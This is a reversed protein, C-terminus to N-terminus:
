FGSMMMRFARDAFDDALKSLASRKNAETAAPNTSSVAYDGYWSFASNSWIIKRSVREEFVLDMVATVRDEKAVDVSTYSLHSSSLNNISGRVVADAEERREAVRFRSTKRFQDVFSNRFINEVNAESTRNAFNDVYVTQIGKDIHEGGPSFRYGCGIMLAVAVFGAAILYKKYKM